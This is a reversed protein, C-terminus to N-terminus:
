KHLTQFIGAIIVVGCAVGTLFSVSSVTLTFITRSASYFREGIKRSRIVEQNITPADCAEGPNLPDKEVAPLVPAFRKIQFISLVTTLGLFFFTRKSRSKSNIQYVNKKLKQVINKLKKLNVKNKLKKLNVKNKFKAMNVKDKFEEMNVKNKFKAMNVKDKLKKLNVMNKFKAMNVKNKFKAM